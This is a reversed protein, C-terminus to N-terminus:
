NRGIFVQKIIEGSEKSMTIVSSKNFCIFCVWGRFVSFFFKSNDWMKFFSVAYFEMWWFVWAELVFIAFLTWSITDM